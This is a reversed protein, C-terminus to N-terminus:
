EFTLVDVTNKIRINICGRREVVGDPFWELFVECVDLVDIEGWRALEVGRVQCRGRPGNPRFATM